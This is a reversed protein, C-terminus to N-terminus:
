RILATCNEQVDHEIAFDNVIQEHWEKAEAAYLNLNASIDLGAAEVEDAMKGDVVWLSYNEDNLCTFNLIKTNDVAMAVLLHTYVGFLLM